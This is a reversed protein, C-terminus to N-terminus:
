VPVPQKKEPGIRFAEVEAAFREIDDLPNEIVAHDVMFRGIPTRWYRRATRQHIDLAVLPPNM